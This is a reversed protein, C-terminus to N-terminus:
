GLLGPVAYAVVIGVATVLAGIMAQRTTFESQPATSRGTTADDHDHTDPGHSHEEDSGHHGTDADGAAADGHSGDGDAAIKELDIDPGVSDSEKEDDSM